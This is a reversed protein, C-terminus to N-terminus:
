LSPCPESEGQLKVLNARHCRYAEIWFENSKRSIVLCATSGRARPTEAHRNLVGPDIGRGTPKEGHDTEKVKKRRLRSEGGKRVRATGSIMVVLVRM